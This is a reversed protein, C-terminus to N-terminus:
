GDSPNPGSETAPRRRLVILTIESPNFFRMPFGAWQGTGPSVYLVGGGIRYLGRVFGGNLRAVLSSVVPGIGGHTHGSLQLDIGNAAFNTRAHTPRHELLIRFEGNTASAFARGVNALVDRKREAEGYDNVGGLALAPRPFVCESALFRIGTGAFWEKWAIWDRYYEHNGRVAYVGDKARLSGLPLLDPGLDRVWGDVYDGTLCVLDADLANVQRVIAETRWRRAASSCHIDSVQAIRYGDLSPPLEPFGIEIEHVSPYVIGNVLGWAAVGWALPPLIWARGKRVWWILSFVLLFFLGGELWNLTWIVREPLLPAMADGGLFEYVIGKSGCLLLFMTWYAQHRVRFRCPRVFFWLALPVCFLSWYKVFFIFIALAM